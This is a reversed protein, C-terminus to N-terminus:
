MCSNKLLNDSVSRIILPIVHLVPMADTEYMGQKSTNEPIPISGSGYFTTSALVLQDLLLLISIRIEPGQRMIIYNNQLYQQLGGCRESIFFNQCM